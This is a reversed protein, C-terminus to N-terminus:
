ILKMFYRCYDKGIERQSAAIRSSRIPLMEEQSIDSALLERRTTSSNRHVRLAVM